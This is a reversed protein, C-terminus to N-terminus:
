LSYGRREWYSKFMYAPIDDMFADIKNRTRYLRGKQRELKFPLENFLDQYLGKAYNTQIVEVSGPTVAGSKGQKDFRDTSLAEQLYRRMMWRSRGQQYKQEPPLRYCFEVLPPYLLPYVYRYGRQRAVVSHYEVRMRLHHSHQGQLLQYEHSQLSEYSGMFHLWRLYSYRKLFNFARGGGRRHEQHFQCFAKYHGQEYILQLAYRFVNAHSSVCEDGGIGSLVTDYASNALEQHLDYALVFGVYPAAGGFYDAYENMSHLLNFAKGDIQYSTKVDLYDKVYQVTNMDSPLLSNVLPVHTYLAPHVGHYHAAVVIASSDLGGSFEAAIRKSGALQVDLANLLLSSFEALYEREDAYFIPSAQKTLDWYCHYHPPQKPYHADISVVFAPEVRHIGAYYTENSYRTNGQWKDIFLGNIQQQNLPPSPHIYKLVDPITSGFIFLDDHYSYYFPEIGFHDRVLTLEHTNENYILCAFGTHMSQWATKDRTKKVTNLVAETSCYIHILDARTYYWMSANLLTCHMM